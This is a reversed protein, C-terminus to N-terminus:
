ELASAIDKMGVEDLVPILIEHIFVEKDIGLEAMPEDMDKIARDIVQKAQKLLWVASMLDHTAESRFGWINKEINRACLVEKIDAKLITLGIDGATQKAQEEVKAM